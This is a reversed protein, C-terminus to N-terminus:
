MKSSIIPITRKQNVGKKDQSLKDEHCEPLPQAISDILIEPAQNFPCKEDGYQSPKQGKNYKSICLTQRFKECWLIPSWWFDNNHNLLYSIYQAYWGQNGHYQSTNRKNNFQELTNNSICKKTLLMKKLFSGTIFGLMTLLITIVYSAIVALTLLGIILSIFRIM